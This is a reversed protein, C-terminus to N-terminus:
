YEMIDGTVPFFSRTGPVPLGMQLAIQEYHMDSPNEAITTATVDRLYRAAGTTEMYGAGGYLRVAEAAVECATETVIAKTIHILQPDDIGNEMEDLARYVMSRMMETKAKMVALNHAVVPNGALPQGNRMRGMLFTKVKELVSESMGLAMFSIALYTHLTQMSDEPKYNAPICIHDYPLLLNNLRITGTGSGHLGLKHEVLSGGKMLGDMGKELLFYCFKDGLLASMVIVDAGDSNTCFIKTGNLVFGDATPIGIHATELSPLIGTPECASLAAVLEGPVLKPLWAEKQAESGIVMLQRCAAAHADMCMALAPCEKSIEELMLNEVAIRMGLGNYKEPFSIGIFGLEATRDWLKRPFVNAKEMEAAAPKVENEVFEKVSQLVLKEESTLNLM